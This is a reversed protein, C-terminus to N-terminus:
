EFASPRLIRNSLIITAAIRSGHMTARDWRRWWLWSYPSGAIDRLLSKQYTPIFSSDLSFSSSFTAISFLIKAEDWDRGKYRWWKRWELSWVSMLSIGVLDRYDWNVQRSRLLLVGRKFSWWHSILLVLSFCSFLLTLDSEEFVAPLHTKASHSPGKGKRVEGRKEGFTLIAKSVQHIFLKRKVDGRDLCNFWATSIERRQERPLDANLSFLNLYLVGASHFWVWWTAPLVLHYLLSRISFRYSLIERTFLTQSTNETQKYCYM